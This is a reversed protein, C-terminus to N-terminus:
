DNILPQSQRSLRRKEAKIGAPVEIAIQDPPIDKGVVANAGVIITHETPVNVAVSAHRDRGVSM